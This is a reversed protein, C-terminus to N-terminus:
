QNIIGDRITLVRNAYRSVSSDHTALIVTKRDEQAVARILEMVMTGTTDDLNGTPEDALIIKPEHVLARAIAVRQQEGGSLQFPLDHEKGELGVLRIIKEITDDYGSANKLLLPMEINEYVTINPFLNFFQFIFGIKERRYLTLQDETYSSVEEGDALIRGRDPVDMGGVLNLLTSKGSGSRGMVSIFEGHEVHLDIGQLVCRKGYCKIVNEVDIM